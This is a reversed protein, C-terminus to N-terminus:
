SRRRLKAFRARLATPSALSRVSDSYAMGFASGVILNLAALAACAPVIWWGQVWGTSALAWGAVSVISFVAAFRWAQDLFLRPGVEIRSFSLIIAFGVTQLALGLITSWALGDLGFGESLVTSFVAKLPLVAISIVVLWRTQGNLVLMRAVVLSASIWLVAMGYIRTLSNLDASAVADMARGPYVIATIQPAMFVLAVIPAALLSLTAVADPVVLRGWAPKGIEALGRAWRPELIVFASSVLLMNTLQGLRSAYSILGIGGETIKSALFFDVYIYLENVAAALALAIVAAWLRRSDATALIRSPKTRLYRWLQQAADRPIVLLQLAIVSVAGCALGVMMGSAAGAQGSWYFGIFLGALGALNAILQPVSYWAGNHLIRNVMGSFESLTLGIPVIASIALLDRMLTRAQADFGPAAMSVVTDAFLWLGVGYASSIVASWMAAHLFFRAAEDGGSDKEVKYVFSLLSPGVAGAVLVIEVFWVLQFTLLLADAYVSAGLLAAIQQVRIFGLVKAAMSVVVTLILLSTTRPGSSTLFLSSAPHTM